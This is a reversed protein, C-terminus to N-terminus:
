HPAHAAGFANTLWKSTLKGRKSIEFPQKPKKLRKKASNLRAQWQHCTAPLLVELWVFQAQAHEV